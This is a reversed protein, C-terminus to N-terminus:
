RIYFKSFDTDFCNPIVWQHLYKMVSMIQFTNLFGSTLKVKKAICWRCNLLCLHQKAYWYPSDQKHIWFINWILISVILWREPVDIRISSDTNPTIDVIVQHCCLMSVKFWRIIFHYPSRHYYLSNWWFGQDDLAEHSTQPCFM